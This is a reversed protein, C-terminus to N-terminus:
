LVIRCVAQHYICMSPFYLSRNPLLIVVTVATTGKKSPPLLMHEHPIWQPRLWIILTKNIKKVSLNICPYKDHQVEKHRKSIKYILYHIKLGTQYLDFNCGRVWSLAKGKGWMECGLWDWFGATPHSPIIYRKEGEGELEPDRCSSNVPSSLFLFPPLPLLPRIQSSCNYDPRPKGMSLAM